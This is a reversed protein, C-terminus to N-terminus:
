SSEIYITGPRAKAVIDDTIAGAGGDSGVDGDGAGDRTLALAAVALAVVLALAGLGLGIRASRRADRVAALAARAMRRRRAPTEPGSGEAMAELAAEPEEEPDIRQEDAVGLASVRM